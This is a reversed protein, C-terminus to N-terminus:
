NIYKKVVEILAEISPESLQLSSVGKEDLAKATSKGWSITQAHQPLVNKQFFGEVNSPSTFVYVDFASSLEVGQILTKYCHVQAVQHDPLGRFMTGLTRTSNPFLAVKPGLWTQFEKAVNLISGKGEGNFAIQHGMSKLLRGTTGGVCAIEIHQPIAHRSLFFTVARPSSFFIVDFQTPLEFPIPRFHLFSSAEVTLSHEKAFDELLQIESRNKSIFLSLSM